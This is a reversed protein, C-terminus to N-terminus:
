FKNEVSKQTQEILNNFANKFRERLNENDISKNLQISVESIAEVKENNGLSYILNQEQISHNENKINIILSYGYKADKDYGRNEFFIPNIENLPILSKSKAVLKIPWYSYQEVQLFCKNKQVVLELDYELKIKKDSFQHEKIKLNLWNITEKIETIRNNESTQSLSNLSFLITILIITKRM